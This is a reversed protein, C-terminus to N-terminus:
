IVTISTIYLSLLSQEVSTKIAGVFTAQMVLEIGEYLTPSTSFSKILEMSDTKSLSEITQKQTESELRQLFTYFQDELIEKSVVRLSRAVFQACESYKKKELSYVVHRTRAKMRVAISVWDNLPRTSDIMKIGEDRFVDKLEDLLDNLFNFCDM